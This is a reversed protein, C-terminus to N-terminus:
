VHLLGQMDLRLLQKNECTSIVSALKTMCKTYILLFLSFLVVSVSRAYMDTMVEIELEQVLKMKGEDLQPLAM